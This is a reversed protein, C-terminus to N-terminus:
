GGYVTPLMKITLHTYRVNSSRHLEAGGAAEGQLEFYDGVTLPVIFRPIFTFYESISTSRTMRQEQYTGGNRNLYCYITGATGSDFWMKAEVEYLGTAPATFRTGNWSDTSDHVKVDYVLDATNGNTIDLQTGSHYYYAYPMGPFAVTKNSRGYIVDNQASSQDGIRIGFADPTTAHDSPYKVITWQNTNVGSDAAPNTGMGISVYGSNAAPLRLNENYSTGTPNVVTTVGSSSLGSVSVNGNSDVIVDEHNPLSSITGDGNLTLAM